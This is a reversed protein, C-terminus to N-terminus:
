GLIEKVRDRPLWVVLGIDKTGDVTLPQTTGFKIITGKKVDYDMTIACEDLAQFTINDDGIKSILESIGLTMIVGYKM